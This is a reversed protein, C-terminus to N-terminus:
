PRPGKKRSAPAPEGAISRELDTLSYVRSPEVIPLVIVPPPSASMNRAIGCLPICISPDDAARMPQTHDRQHDLRRDQPQPRPDVDAGLAAALAHLLTRAHAMDHLPEALAWLAVVESAADILVSPPLAFRALADGM